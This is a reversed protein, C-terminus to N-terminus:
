DHVQPLKLNEGVINAMVAHAHNILSVQMGQLKYAHNHIGKILSSTIDHEHLLPLCCSSFSHNNFM